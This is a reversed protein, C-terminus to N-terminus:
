KEHEGTEKFQMKLAYGSMWLCLLAGAGFMIRALAINVNGPAFPVGGSFGSAGGFVAVWGGTLGMALLLLSAMLNNLGSEPGVVIMLGAIGFISGCLAVVWRPAHFAAEEVSIFDAAVAIILLGAIIFLWGWKANSGLGADSKAM